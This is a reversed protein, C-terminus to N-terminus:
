PKGSPAPAVIQDAKLGIGAIRILALAPSGQPVYFLEFNEQGESLGPAWLGRMMDPRDIVDAPSRGLWSTADAVSIRRPEDVDYMRCGVSVRGDIAVESLVLYLEEGAVEHRFSRMPAVTGGAQEVIRNGTGEAFEMLPGIPTGRTTSLESWGQGRLRTAAGDLSGLDSCATRFATLVAAAPYAGSASGAAAENAATGNGDVPGCAALLAAAVGATVSLRLPPVLRSM